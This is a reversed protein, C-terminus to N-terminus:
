YEMMYDVLNTDRSINLKKRLRYRSIEVGRVSINLLNAIEKSSMNMRLYACLKIEQPTLNPHDKKINTLFEGHVQDFHKTFQDWGEDEAMNRDIDKILKKISDKSGSKSIDKITDRLTLMFENKNILHMTTTALERNKHDIEARLKDNRLKSIEQESKKSVEVIESEKKELERKQEQTLKEKDHKYLADQIYMAIGFILLLGIGYLAYALRSRYWPPFVSIAIETPESIEGFVNKARVKFTYNGQSLNTYEKENISTWESWDKDFNELQYQFQIAEQDDFYPAAYSIKLSSFHAPLKMEEGITQSIEGAGNYRLEYDETVTEISRIYTKLPQNRIYAVSPNYHIFGEKAGFLVNEPDLASINELDDSLYKRIREFSTTNKEFNGYTTKELYGLERDSLFYINGNYDQEIEMIHAETYLYGELETHHIFRDQSSSYKFIGHEAPFVLENGIRFVNILIDSPFGANKGYFELKKMKNYDHSFTIKYVGKYGHSMFMVSDNAMEFVRSSEQFDPINTDFQIHNTSNKFLSFGDYTGALIEDKLPTKTVKWTGTEKFFPYSKGGKVEFAGDHHSLILDGHINQINYVQGGSKEVLQYDNDPSLPDTNAQQYFLGNSTGLYIKNDYLTACYGTGPLGTQEDITSFPLSLEVLAIGNNMGLWLNNFQDEHLALVTRNSLGREKTLHHKVQGNQDLILLGNNQTGIAMDNNEMLVATNILSKTLFSEYPLQWKQFQGNLYQYTIGSKLFILIGNNKHPLIASIEKGTLVDSGNILSFSHGNWKGLGHSFSSAYLNGAAEFILEHPYGSDIKHLKKGDYTIVGLYSCFWIKDEYKLIKWIDELNKDKEQLQDYLSIFVLNGHDDAEFYGFQNQGGLYIRGDYDVFVSRVRTNNSVLYNRWSHGDYELLGFNNAIYLFGKKDQSIDWNQIGGKYEDTNFTKTFPIKAFGYHDTQAISFKGIFILTLCILTRSFTKKILHGHGM